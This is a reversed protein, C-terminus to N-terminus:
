AKLLHLKTLLAAIKKGKPLLYVDDRTIVGLLFIAVAYVAIAACISVMTSLVLGLMDNTFYYCAGACLACM